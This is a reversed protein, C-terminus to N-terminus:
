TVESAVDSAFSSMTNHRAENFNARKWGLQGISSPRGGARRRRESEFTLRYVQAVSEGRDGEM